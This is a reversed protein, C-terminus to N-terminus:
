AADRLADGLIRRASPALEDMPNEGAFTELESAAEDMRKLNYLQVGLNYRSRPVTRAALRLESLAEDPRHLQMLASGVM